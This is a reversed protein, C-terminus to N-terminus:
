PKPGAETATSTRRIYLPLSGLSREAPAKPNRYSANRVLRKTIALAVVRSDDTVPRQVSTGDDGEAMGEDFIAFWGSKLPLYGGWGLSSVPETDVRHKIEGYRIGVSVGEPTTARKDEISLGQIERSRDDLYTLAFVEIEGAKVPWATFFTNEFLIEVRTAGDIRAPKRIPPIPSGFEIWLPLYVRTLDPSPATTCAPLILLGLLPLLRPYLKM